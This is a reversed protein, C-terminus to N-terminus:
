HGAEHGRDLVQRVKQILDFKSFPKQLFPSGDTLVGRYSLTDDVHASMFLVKASSYQSKLKAFLEPGSMGPM